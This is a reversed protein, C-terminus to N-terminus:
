DCSSYNQTVSSTINTYSYSSPSCNLIIGAADEYASVTGTFGSPVSCSYAYLPGTIHAIPCYGGTSKKVAGVKNGLTLSGSITLTSVTSTPTSITSSSSSSTSTSTSATSTTTSAILHGSRQPNYSAIISNLEISHSTGHSDTWTVTLVIDDYLPAAIDTHQTVTWTRLYNANTGTVSDNDTVIADYESLTSYSRLMEIKKQGLMTAETRQKALSNSFLLTGQFKALTLLGGTLIILTIFVEILTLGRPVHTSLRNIIKLM